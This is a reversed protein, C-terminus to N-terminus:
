SLGGKRRGFWAMVHQATIVGIVVPRAHDSIVPLANVSQLALQAAATAIHATESVGLVPKMLASVTTPPAGDRWQWRLLDARSIMGLFEGEEHVVPTSDISFDMLLDALRAAPLEPDVCFVNCMAMWCEDACTPRVGAADCRVGQPAREGAPVVIENCRKCEGCVDIAISCAKFECFVTPADTITGDARMTRRYVVPLLVSSTSPM